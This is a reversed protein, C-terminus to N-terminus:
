VGAHRPLYEDTMVRRIAEDGVGDSDTAALLVMGKILKMQDCRGEM